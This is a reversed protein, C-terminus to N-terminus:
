ANAHFFGKKEWWAYWAAEVQKPHYDPLMNGTTCLKKEGLPTTDAVFTSPKEAKADKKPKTSPQCPNPKDKKGQKDKKGKGM